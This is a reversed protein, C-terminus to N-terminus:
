GGNQSTEKKYEKMKMEYYNGLYQIKSHGSIGFFSIRYEDDLIYIKGDFEDIRSEGFDGQELKLWVEGNQFIYRDEEERLIKTTSHIQVPKVEVQLDPNNSDKAPFKMLYKGGESEITINTTYLYLYDITTDDQVWVQNNQLFYVQDAFMGMYTGKLSSKIPLDMAREKASQQNTDISNCSIFLICLFVFSRM